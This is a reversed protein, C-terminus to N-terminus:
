WFIELQPKIVINVNDLASQDVYYCLESEEGHPNGPGMSHLLPYFVMLSKM